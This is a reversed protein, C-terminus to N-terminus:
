PLIIVSNEHGQMYINKKQLSPFFIQTAPQTTSLFGQGIPVSHKFKSPLFAGYISIPITPYYKKVTM